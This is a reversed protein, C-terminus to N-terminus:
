RHTTLIPRSPPLPSPLLFLCPFSLGVKKTEPYCISDEYEESTCSQSMDYPQTSRSPLPLSPLVMKDARRDIAFSLSSVIVNIQAALFYGQLHVDCFSMAAECSLSDFRDICSSQMMEECSTV